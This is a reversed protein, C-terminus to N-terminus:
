NTFKCYETQVATVLSTVTKNISTFSASHDHSNRHIKMHCTKQSMNFDTQCVPTSLVPFYLLMRLRTSLGASCCKGTKYKYCSDPLLMHGTTVKLKTLFGSPSTFAKCTLISCPFKKTNLASHIIFLRTFKLKNHM